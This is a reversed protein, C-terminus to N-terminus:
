ETYVFDFLLIYYQFTVSALCLNLVFRETPRYPLVLDMQRHVVVATWMGTSYLCMLVRRHCASNVNNAITDVLSKVYSGTGLFRDYLELVPELIAPVRFRNRFIIDNVFQIIQTKYSDKNTLLSLLFM